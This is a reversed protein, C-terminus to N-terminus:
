RMHAAPSQDNPLATQQATSPPTKDYGLLERLSEFAVRTDSKSAAKMYRQAHRTTFECNAGVWAEFEGHKLEAKKRMLLEGCRIAYQVAGGAATLCSAPCSKGIKM